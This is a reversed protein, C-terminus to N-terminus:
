CTETAESAHRPQALEIPDRDVHVVAIMGRGVEMRDVAAVFGEDLDFGPSRKPAVERLSRPRKHVFPPTEMAVLQQLVPPARLGGLRETRNFGKSLRFDHASWGADNVDLVQTLHSQPNREGIAQDTLEVESGCEGAEECPDTILGVESPHGHVRHCARQAPRTVDVEVGIDEMAVGRGGRTVTRDDEPLVVQVSSPSRRHPTQGIESAERDLAGPNDPGPRLM